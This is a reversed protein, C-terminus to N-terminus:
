KLREIVPEAVVCDVSKWHGGKLCDRLFSDSKLHSNLYREVEARTRGFMQHRVVPYGLGAGAPEYIDITLRWLAM